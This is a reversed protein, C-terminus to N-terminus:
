LDRTEKMKHRAVALLTVAETRTALCFEGLGLGLELGAEAGAELGLGLGLGLVGIMGTLWHSLCRTHQSLFDIVAPTNLV